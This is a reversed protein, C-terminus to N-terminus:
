RNIIELVLDIWKQYLMGPEGDYEGAKPYFEDIISDKVMLHNGMGLYFNHWELAPIDKGFM